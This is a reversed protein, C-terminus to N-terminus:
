TQAGPVFALALVLVTIACIWSGAVRTVIQWGRATLFQSLAAANLVILLVGVGLGVVAFATTMPQAVNVIGDTDAGVLGGALLAGAQVWTPPLRPVVALLVGCLLALGLIYPTLPLHLVQQAWLGAGLGLVLVLVLVSPGVVAVPMRGLLLGLGLLLLAHEVALFPHAAGSYFGGGGPLSGHATAPSAALLLALALLGRM